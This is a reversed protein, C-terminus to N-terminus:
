IIQTIPLLKCFINSVMKDAKENVEKVREGYGQLESLLEDHKAQLIKVHELNDGLEAGAILSEQLSFRLLRSLM